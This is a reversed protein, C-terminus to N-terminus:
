TQAPFRTAPDRTSSSPALATDLPGGGIRVYPRKRAADDEVGESERSLVFILCQILATLGLVSPLDPPMDCVRVEVTGYAPSPRVDWWLDKPSHICGGAVLRDLLAAYHDWNRFRPPAGSSPLASMVEARHAHLGHGAAGSLATRRCPWYSLCTCVSEMATPRIAADGSSVGVHVHLGFTLQRFLTEQFVDALEGYRPTEVVQQDQWESFPHTGGWGLRTECQAAAQEVLQITGELDRRVEDVDRCIGTNIEVCSRFFEPKVRDRVQGPLPTLIGDLAEVAMSDTDVLQLELEMRSWSNPRPIIGDTRAISCMKRPIARRSSSRSTLTSRGMRPRLTPVTRFTWSRGCMVPQKHTTSRRRRVLTRGYETADLRFREAILKASVCLAELSLAYLLVM